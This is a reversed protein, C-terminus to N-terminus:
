IENIVKTNTNEDELPNQKIDRDLVIPAAQVSVHHLNPEKSKSM